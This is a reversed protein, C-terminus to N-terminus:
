LSLWNRVKFYRGSKGARKPLKSSGVPEATVEETPVVVLVTVGADREVCGGIDVVAAGVRDASVAGLNEIRGVGGVRVSRGVSVSM